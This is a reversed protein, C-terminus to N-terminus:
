IYHEKMNDRLTNDHHLETRNSQHHEKEKISDNTRQAWRKSLFHIAVALIFLITFVVATVVSTIIPEPFDMEYCSQCFSTDIWNPPDLRDYLFM